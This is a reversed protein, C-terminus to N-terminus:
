RHETRKSYAWKVPFLCASSELVCGQYDLVQQLSVQDGSKSHNYKLSLGQKKLVEAAQGLLLPIQQNEIKGFFNHLM